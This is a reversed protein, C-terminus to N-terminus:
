WAGYLYILIVPIFIIRAAPRFVITLFVLALLQCIKGILPGLVPGVMISVFRIVPHLEDYVSGNVMFNWTSLSDVFAAAAALLIYLYFKQFYGRYNRRLRTLYFDVFQKPLKM